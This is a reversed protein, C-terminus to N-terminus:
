RRAVSEARGVELLDLYDFFCMRAFLICMRYTESHTSVHRATKARLTGGTRGSEAAKTVYGPSYRMVVQRANFVRTIFAHRSGQILSKSAPHTHCEGVITKLAKLIM